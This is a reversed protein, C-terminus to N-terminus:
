YLSKFDPERNLDKPTHRPMTEAPPTAPVQFQERAYAKAGSPPKIDLTALLRNISALIRYDAFQVASRGTAVAAQASVRSNQADLLDLL